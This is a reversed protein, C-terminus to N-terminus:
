QVLLWGLSPDATVIKKLSIMEKHTHYFRNGFNVPTVARLSRPIEGVFSLICQSKDINYIVEGSLETLNINDLDIINIITYRM